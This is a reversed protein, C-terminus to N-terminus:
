KKGHNQIQKNLKKILRDIERIEEPYRMRKKANRAQLEKNSILELNEIHNNMPDGDIRVCNMGEPIPGNVATWVHVNMHEYKGNVKIMQVPRDRLRWVVVTGEPNAGRTKWANVPCDKFRGNEKNRLFIQKIEDATRKLKLYRRKKEIHKKSWGKEKEWRDAFMESLESDGISKYNDYLFSIQEETWYQLEMRKMGLSYLEMRVRTLQMGLADALQRNTMIKWNDQLFKQQEDTFVIKNKPIFTM